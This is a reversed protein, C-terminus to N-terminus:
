LSIATSMSKEMVEAASVEEGRRDSLYIAESILMTQLAINATPLLKVRGQLAAIWHQQSSDYADENERLRHRRIDMANLDVTSNLDLDSVTSFFSFPTAEGGARM